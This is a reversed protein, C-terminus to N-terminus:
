SRRRHTTALGAMALAVLVISAPEPVTGSAGGGGIM